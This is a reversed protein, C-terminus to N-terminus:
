FELSTCNLFPDNSPSSYFIMNLYGISLGRLSLMILYSSVLKDTEITPVLGSYYIYNEFLAISLM